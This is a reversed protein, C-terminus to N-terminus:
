RVFANSVPKDESAGFAVGTFGNQSQQIYWAGASPRFVALDTKGDGDFDGPAPLDTGLGFAAGTFGLQSRLLYWTGTSPRFVAEDAKGDGDYDGVVPKDEAAGFQVGTFGLQSRLLYWTGNSPRFVAEDAKGDGDYDAVVPKDGSAGFQVSNFQNNVLNLIYWTGNSPRFVAIESKGDGDFDAPAPIDDATGFAIGTFGLQSRLLYWIGNRYVALDTKGDGDYDAPVIKDTNNGFQVGTFGLTSRQLYWTGSSPRFVSIDSKGDGDFDAVKAFVAAAANVAFNANSIDFFVNGVAQVKIRATTTSVNPATINATGTNPVSAALVTPFTQGGDTSLSIRVNAANVPAANTNAVDWTVIQQSNGAWTVNTNPATVLFPGAAANVVVQMGADSIGGGGARNDRAVVQFKMTRNISPLEEGTVCTETGCLYTAPPVNANNLIYQLSPFTRTPNITPAYSRLIPRAQGDNDTDGSATTSRPGLDYEEWSYTIADNNADTGVATLSFPTDRPITYDAGANVVPPTNGTNVKIACRGAGDGAENQIDTLMQQLSRTHFNDVSNNALDRPACLTAYGMITVGSGPEFTSGAVGTSCGGTPQDYNYTHDATFQHGIEHAVYDVTFADGVPSPRGTLGNAKGGVGNTGGMDCVGARAVGGPSTAYLHGIDYNADGVLQDLTRQNAALDGAGADNAYPDTAPDTFIVNTNVVYNFRVAFDREYIANMRNITIVIQDRARTKAQADTDGAQRFFNTYEGTGAVSLRYTRLMTGNVPVVAAAPALSDKAQDGHLKKDLNCHFEEGEAMGYDNKNYVVYHERDNVSYPDILYTGNVSLVYAHFGSALYDLRATATPDDIGQASFTKIDPNSAADARSLIPSETLRYRAMGGNPLPLAIITETSRAAGTFELPADALVRELGNTDLQFTKYVRPVIQRQLGGDRLPADSIESWLNESANPTFGALTPSGIYIFAGAAVVAFTLATLAYSLKTFKTKM